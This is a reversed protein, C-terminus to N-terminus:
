MCVDKPFLKQETNDSRKSEKKKQIYKFHYLIWIEIVAWQLLAKYVSLTTTFTQDSTFMFM